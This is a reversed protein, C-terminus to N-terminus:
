RNQAGLRKRRQEQYLAANAQRILGEKDFPIGLAVSIGFSLGFFWANEAKAREVTAMVRGIINKLVEEDAGPLIAAYEDGGVRSVIDDKRFANMLINAALQIAKDGLKHGFRDNTEKLNDIDAVILGIPVLRGKSLRELEKEFYPRNYLGTLTDHFSYYKLEEELRKIDSIDTLVCVAREKKWTELTSLLALSAIVYTRTQDKRILEVETRVPVDLSLVKTLGDRFEYLDKKSFLEFWSFAPEILEAEKYGTLSETVRNVDYVRGDEDLVLVSDSANDVIERFYRESDELRRKLREIKTVDRVILAFLPGDNEETAKGLCAVWLALDLRKGDELVHALELELPMELASAKEMGARLASVQDELLAKLLSREGALPTVERSFLMEVFRDNAALVTLNSNVIALGEKAKAFMRVLGDRFHELPEM